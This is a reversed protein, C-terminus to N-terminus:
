FLASRCRRLVSAEVDAALTTFRAGGYGHHLCEPPKTWKVFYSKHVVAQIKPKNTIPNRQRGRFPRWLWQFRSRCRQTVKKRSHSLNWVNPDNPDGVVLSGTHFLSVRECLSSKLLNGSISPIETLGEHSKLPNNASTVACSTQCSKHSSKMSVDRRVIAQPASKQVTTRTEYVEVEDDHTQWCSKVNLCHLSKSNKSGESKNSEMCDPEENIPTIKRIRQPKRRLYHCLKKGSRQEVESFSINQTNANNGAQQLDLQSPMKVLIYHDNVLCIESITKPIHSASALPGNFFENVEGEQYIRYDPPEDYIEQYSVSGCEIAESREVNKIEEVKDTFLQWEPPLSEAAWRDDGELTDTSVVVPTQKTLTKSKKTTLSRPASSTRRHSTSSNNSSANISQQEHWLEHNSNTRTSPKQQEAISLPTRQVTITAMPM